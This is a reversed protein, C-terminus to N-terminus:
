KYLGLTRLMILLQGTHYATHEIVLMVERFVLHEAKRVPALLNTEPDLIFDIFQQREEFYDKKLEEWEYDSDPKVKKPWYADPWSHSSYNEEICYDLIDKQTFRIHYFLEYFSYPLGNPIEGLRTFPIKDLMEGLPLFAEGGKLHSILQEKIREEKVM